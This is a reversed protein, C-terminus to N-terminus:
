DKTRVKEDPKWKYSWLEFDKDYLSKTPQRHVINNLLQGPTLTMTDGMYTVEYNENRRMCAKVNYDRLDINGWKCTKVTIKM